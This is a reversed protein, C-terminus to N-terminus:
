SVEWDIPMWSTSVASLYRGLVLQYISEAFPTEAYQVTGRLERGVTHLDTVRGIPPQTDDHAWLFVPNRM